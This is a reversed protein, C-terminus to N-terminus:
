ASQEANEHSDESEQNEEEASGEIETEAETETEVELQEESEAEAEVEDQEVEPEAIMNQAIEVKRSQIADAVRQGILQDFASSTNVADKSLAFRVIDAPTYTPTTM